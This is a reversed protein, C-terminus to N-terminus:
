ILLAPSTVGVLDLEREFSAPSGYYPDPVETFASKSPHYTLFLKVRARAGRPRM